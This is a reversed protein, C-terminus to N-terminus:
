AHRPGEKKQQQTSLGGVSPALFADVARRILESTSLGTRQSLRQLALRHHQPLYFNMRYMRMYIRIYTM